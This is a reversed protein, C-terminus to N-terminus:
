CDSRCPETTPAEESVDADPFTDVNLEVSYKLHKGSDDKYVVHWIAIRGVALARYRGKGESGHLFRGRGPTKEKDKKWSKGLLEFTTPIDKRPIGIGNDRVFVKRLSLTDRETRVDVVDADADLSNWILEALSPIPKGRTVDRVMREEIKVKVRM